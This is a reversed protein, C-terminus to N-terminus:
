FDQPNCRGHKAAAVNVLTASSDTDRKLRRLEARMDSANQYRLNRDKELARNIIDGLKPPVDPNLRVPSLPATHLIADFLVASTAGRFPPIGTAMQYLVVGFSFLDTRADLPKGRAQEPSMYALTGLTSGPTTLHEAPKKKSLPAPRIARAAQDGTTVM